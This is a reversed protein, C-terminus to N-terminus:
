FIKDLGLDQKIERLDRAIDVVFDMAIVEVVDGCSSMGGGILFRYVISSM